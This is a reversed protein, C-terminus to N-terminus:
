IYSPRWAKQYHESLFQLFEKHQILLGNNAPLPEIIIAAIKDGHQSLCERVADQDGLELIITEQAVNKLHRGVQRQQGQM